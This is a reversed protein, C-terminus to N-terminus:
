ETKRFPRYLGIERIWIERNWLPTRAVELHDKALAVDLKIQTDFLSVDKIVPAGTLNAGKAAERKAAAIPGELSIQDLESYISVFAPKVKSEDEYVLDGDKITTKITYDPEAKEIINVLTQGKNIQALVEQKDKKETAQRARDIHVLLRGAAISM